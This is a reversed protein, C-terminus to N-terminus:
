ALSQFSGDIKLGELAVIKSFERISGRAEDASKEITSVPVEGQDIGMNKLIKQGVPVYAAPNTVQNMEILHCRNIIGRDLKELYNTSFFFM